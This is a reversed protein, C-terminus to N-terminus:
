SEVDRWSRTGDEPRKTSNRSVNQMPKSDAFKLPDSSRLNADEEVFSGPDMLSNIRDFVPLPYHHDCKPCVNLNDNLEKNLIIESCNVCKEWLGDPTDIRDGKAIPAKDRELWAM